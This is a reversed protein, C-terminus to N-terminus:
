KDKLAKAVAPGLAEGSLDKGIIKGDGDLLFNTPLQYIGYKVALKGDWQNGDFYQPWPMDNEKLFDELQQKDTDLSIGIIDFGQDHYKNYAQIVEPLEIRCIVCWTAWFDVLVVKGRFQTLSLPQGNLNTVSFNPLTTGVALARQIKRKAAEAELEHVAEDTNGGIQVDPYDRKIQKFLPLAKEPDNFVQLYLTAEKMLIQASDLNTNGKYKDYLVGFEKINDAFDAEDTKGAQLKTNIKEVLHNLDAIAPGNTEDAYVSRGSLLLVAACAISFLNKM